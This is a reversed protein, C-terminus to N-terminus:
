WWGIDLEELHKCNSAIKNLGFQTLTYARWLDLSEILTCNESIVHMLQDFDSINVCSGFNICKLFNCSELIKIASHQDILTRYLNLNTLNKLNQIHEFADNDEHEDIFLINQCSSLSLHALNTCNTSILKLM